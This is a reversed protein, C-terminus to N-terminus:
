SQQQFTGCTEYILYSYYLTLEKMKQSSYSPSWQEYLSGSISCGVLSPFM